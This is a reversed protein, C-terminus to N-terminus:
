ERAEVPEALPKETFYEKVVQATDKPIRSATVPYHQTFLHNRTQELIQIHKDRNLIDARAIDLREQHMSEKSRIFRIVRDSGLADLEDVNLAGERDLLEEYASFLWEDLDYKDGLRIRQTIPIETPALQQVMLGFVNDFAFRDLISLLALIEEQNQQHDTTLNKRDVPKPRHRLFVNFTLLFRKFLLQVSMTYFHQLLLEFEKVTIGPLLIPQEDSMGEVETGGESPVSFMDRFVESEQIFFRRHVKFLRNEV